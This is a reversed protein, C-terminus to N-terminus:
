PNLRFVVPFDNNRVAILHAEGKIELKRVYRYEGWYQRAELGLPLQEFGSPTWKMLVLPQAMKRGYDTRFGSFNGVGLVYDEGKSSFSVFDRIPSFQAKLPLPTIEQEGKPIFLSQFEAVEFVRAQNIQEKELLDQPSKLAAYQVYSEHRRKLNPIQRILDDRTAFPVLHGEMYHFVLPDDQGNGDFDGHFLKVPQSKSAKLKSNLGLNGLFLGNLGTNTQLASLGYYWGSPALPELESFVGDQQQQFVRVPMWEGALLLESKGDGTVDYWLAKQVMGPRFDEGFYTKTMDKFGGQGDNVLLYARPIAGYNGTVVAAGVFIDVYGDGNVDQFAVSSTNEGIPPLSNMSFRFNGKGDNLFVRDFNFVEGAAYENGGSGVYLDLHGDGNLDIFEAVVDEATKLQEFVPNKQLIFGGESQQLFIAGAQGKAGGLYIDDLGDGNVDGVALAPGEMAYRRPMLYERRFEDFDTNEEHKWGLEITVLELVTSVEKKPLAASEGNGKVLRHKTNVQKTGFSEIQGAGWDVYVQEVEEAKGLGFTLVTSTGSQFGRSTSLTQHLTKDGSKVWVQAGIGFHNAKDGALEFQIFQHGLKESNNRYIFAQQDTNNVVLDLDGDNDLDAYASGNSYSLQDLGWVEGVQEFVLEGKNRFTFNALKMSPLMDIQRQQIEKESLRPVLTQSYQIFDLDNPRKVIGNTVHIDKHGDNDMDFILPSWSWDTAYTETLLGIESFKGDGRNLQLHNRVYQDGYGLRKKVDFVEQKDEGVSKMWIQPDEPLMDTSFIDPLGDNNIDALDNGMSYRSTNEIYEQLSERFTGDGQNIYLYDDETFDNSVYIDMWGDGNVDAIGVGLGFGLSSSLIGAERTVEIMKQEGQAVLSKFLKDGGKEDQGSFKTDAHSFVEPKKISHNLLYLDLDGDNDYDFFLAHTSFGEFDIGYAEAMETFTLDGNNIYLKNKGQLGKYDGVQCVYIDLLGDGNVDAMTVGTSWGGDGDVGASQTIDEFQFNGKNLYLKNEGQNSTFYIDVWGDNNIDGLAVGGGNYFYLYELINMEESSVLDNSFDIGTDKPSLLTFLTEQKPTSCSVWLFFLVLSYVIRM